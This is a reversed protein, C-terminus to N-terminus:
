SHRELKPVAIGGEREGEVIESRKMIGTLLCWSHAELCPFEQDASSINSRSVLAFVLNRYICSKILVFIINRTALEHVWYRSSHMDGIYLERKLVVM